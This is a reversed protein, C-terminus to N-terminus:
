NIGKATKIQEYAALILQFKEKAVNLQTEGLHGLKDPHHIKALRRFAQKLEKETCTSDLDLLDYASHLSSTSTSPRSSQYHSQEEQQERKFTFLRYVTFVTTSRIRAKKVVRDIFQSEQQTLIGDATVISILLYLLHGKAAHDFEEHIIGCCKDIPIPQNLYSEYTKFHEAVKKKSFAKELQFRIRAEESTSIKGDAMSAAAALQLILDIFTKESKLFGKHKLLYAHRLSTYMLYLFLALVALLVGVILRSIFEKQPILAGILFGILIAWGSFVFRPM